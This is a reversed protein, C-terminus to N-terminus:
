PPTKDGPKNHEIRMTREWRAGWQPPTNLNPEAQGIQHASREAVAKNTRTSVNAFSGKGGNERGKSVEQVQVMTNTLGTEYGSFSRFWVPSQGILVVVLWSRLLGYVATQDVTWWLDSFKFVSCLGTKVPRLQDKSGWLYDQKLNSIGM